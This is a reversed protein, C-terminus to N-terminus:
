SSKRSFNGNKYLLHALLRRGLYIRKKHYRFSIAIKNYNVRRDVELYGGWDTQWDAIPGEAHDGSQLVGCGPFKVVEVLVQVDQEVRPVM